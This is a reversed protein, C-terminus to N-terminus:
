RDQKLKALFSQGLPLNKLGLFEAITVGVCAFNPLIGLNIGPKLGQIFVLLPVYERSHDTSKTTPDCGHDATIILLDEPKLLGFLQPLMADFDELARAYGVVDNRHGYLMDFDVFNSFILGNEFEKMAAFTQDWVQQNNKAVLKTTIGDGAFIDSIKGVGVMPLGAAKGIDLLHGAPPLISYDHRNATRVFNGADGVFPRAIVRAVAHPGQLIQRAKECMKYLEALSIVGEHAAIQFVSDASTYVIPCGTKVHEPGLRQIIETGSAVENGLVHRGIAQEFEKIIEPPFGKPYTPFAQPLNIGMMEWHGTTTDKGAAKEAMKGYAAQSFINPLVSLIDDINGLGLKALNPLQLGGVTKAINALTNSGADGYATADPLEGIGVSDMVLLIARKM